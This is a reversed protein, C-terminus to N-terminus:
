LVYKGILITKTKTFGCFWEDVGKFCEPTGDCITAMIQVTIGAALITVDEVFEGITWDYVTAKIPPTESNHIASSCKFNASKQILNKRKYEDICDEEDEALGEYLCDPHPHLDCRNDIHVCTQSRECAFWDMANFEYVFGDPSTYINACSPSGQPDTHLFVVHYIMYDVFLGSSDSFDVM